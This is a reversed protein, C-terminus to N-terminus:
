IEVVTQPGTIECLFPLCVYNAVACGILSSVFNSRQGNFTLQLYAPVTMWHLSDSEQLRFPLVLIFGMICGQNVTVPHVKHEPSFNFVIFLGIDVTM